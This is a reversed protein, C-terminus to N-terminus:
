LPQPNQTYGNIEEFGGRSSYGRLIHAKVEEHFYEPSVNLLDEHSKPVLRLNGWRWPARAPFGKAKHWVLWLAMFVKEVRAWFIRVFFNYECKALNYELPPNLSVLQNNRIAGLPYGTM